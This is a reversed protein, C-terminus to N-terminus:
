RRLKWIDGEIKEFYWGRLELAKLALPFKDSFKKWGIQHQETHHIRCLYMWNWEDLTGGSGKTKIHCVDANREGCVTCRNM